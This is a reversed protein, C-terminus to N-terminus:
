KMDQNIYISQSIYDMDNSSAIPRTGSSRRARETLSRSSTDLIESRLIRM